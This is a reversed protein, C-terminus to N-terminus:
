ETKSLVKMNLRKGADGSEMGKKTWYVFDNIICLCLWHATKAGDPFEVVPALEQPFLVNPFGRYQDYDWTGEVSQKGDASHFVATEDANLTLVWEKDNLDTFAYTAIYDDKSPNISLERTVADNTMKEVTPVDLTDKNPGAAWIILGCAVAMVVALTISIVHGHKNKKRNEPTMGRTNM